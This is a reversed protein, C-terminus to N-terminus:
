ELTSTTTQNQAEVRFVKGRTSSTTISTSLFDGEDIVWISQTPGKVIKAPYVPTIPLLMPLFGATQRFSFQVGPSVTPINGLMAGRDGICVLDGPYTPDVIELQMGHNRFRIAQAPRTALVPTGQVCSNQAINPYTPQYETEDVTVECPNADFGGGPLAGTRPDASADCTPAVLPIRGVQDPAADPDRVCNGAADAIIPHVYGSRSGVVTFAEGARLEYRQSANVCAQPPIVGEM